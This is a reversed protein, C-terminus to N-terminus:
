KYKKVVYQINYIHQPRLVSYNLGYYLETRNQETRRIFFVSFLSVYNTSRSCYKTPNQFCATPATRFIGIQFMTSSKQQCAFSVPFDSTPETRNKQYFISFILVCLKYKQLLIKNSKSLLSNTCNQFYWDSVHHFIKTSLCLLCSFGLNTFVFLFFDTDLNITMCFYRVLGVNYLFNLEPSFRLQKM